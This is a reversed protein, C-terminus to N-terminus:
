EGLGVAVLSQAAMWGGAMAAVASEPDPLWGAAVTCLSLSWSEICMMAAASYSLKMYDRWNQLPSKLPPASPAGSSVPIVTTPSRCTLHFLLAARPLRLM